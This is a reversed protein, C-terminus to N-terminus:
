VLLPHRRRAGTGATATGRSPTKGRVRATRVCRREQGAVGAQTRQLGRVAAHDGACQAGADDGARVQRGAPEAGRVRARGAGAHPQDDQQAAQASGQGDAWAQRPARHRRGTRAAAADSPQGRQRLGPRGAAAQAHEGGAARRATATRRRRQGGHDEDPPDAQLTRGRQRAAQLRLVVQRAKADLARGPRHAGPAEQELGRAGGGQEAGRAGPRQGAHDAGARHQRGRDARGEPHLRAAAVAPEVGRFDGPRGARRRGAAAPLEVAHTRGPHEARRGAPLLAPLEAQGAGPARM